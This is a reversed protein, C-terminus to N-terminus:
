ACRREGEQLDAVAMDAEVLRGIGVGARGEAFSDGLHLRKAFLRIEDDMGAVDRLERAVVLEVVGVLDQLFGAQRHEEDGALMVHEVAPPFANRLRKPLPLWPAPQYLKSWLPTCKTASTLTASRFGPPIPLRPAACSFPQLRVQGSPWGGRRDDHEGVDRQPGHIGVPAPARVIGGLRQLEQRPETRDGHEVPVDVLDRLLHFPMNREM